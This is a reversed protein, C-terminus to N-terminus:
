VSRVYIWKLIGPLREGDESDRVRTTVEVEGARLGYKAYEGVRISRAMGHSLPIPVKVWEGPTAAVADGVKQWDVKGRLRPPDKAKSAM